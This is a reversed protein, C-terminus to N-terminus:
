SASDEVKLFTHYRQAPEEAFHRGSAGTAVSIIASTLIFTRNATLYWAHIGRPACGELKCSNCCNWAPLIGASGSFRASNGVLLMYLSEWILQRNSCTLYPSDDGPNRSEGSHCILSRPNGSFIHGRTLAKWKGCVMVGQWWFSFVM